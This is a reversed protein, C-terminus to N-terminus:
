KTFFIKVAMLVLFVAFVRKLLQTDMQVSLHAGLYSGLVAFLVIFPIVHWDVNGSQIHKYAGMIATPIIMVMSTAIAIHPDLKRFMMLLPVFVLGGGVGFLGSSVGGIFGILALALYSIFAEM